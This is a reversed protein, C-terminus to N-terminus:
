WGRKVIREIYDRFEDSAVNFGPVTESLNNLYECLEDLVKRGKETLPEGKETEKFVKFEKHAFQKLIEDVALIM